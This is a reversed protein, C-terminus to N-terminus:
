KIKIFKMSNDSNSFVLTTDDEFTITAPSQASGVKLTIYGDNDAFWRMEYPTDIMGLVCKGDKKFTITMESKMDAIYSTYSTDWTQGDNSIAVLQWDGVIKAASNGNNCASFGLMLAFICLAFIAKKM